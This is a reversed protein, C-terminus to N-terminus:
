KIEGHSNRASGAKSAKAAKRHNAVGATKMLAKEASIIKAMAAM